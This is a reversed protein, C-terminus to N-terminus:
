NGFHSINITPRWVACVMGCMRNGNFDCFVCILYGFTVMRMDLAFVVSRIATRIPLAFPGAITRVRTNQNDIVIM